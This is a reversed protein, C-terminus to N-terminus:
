GTAAFELRAGYRRAIFSKLARNQPRDLGPDERLIAGAKDRALELLPADTLLNAVRLEPLGHQRTGLLEGPGRLRLDEEAIRFGDREGALVALRANDADAARSTLLLCVGPRDGRGVRGRLQHLQSLGFREAHQVIMLTAEPVDVGVEIVTTCVLAVVRGAAFDALVRQQEDSKMRGHLLGVPFGALPGAALARFEATAARLPLADSEEVLPYVIYAREGNALHSRARAWAAPLRAPPVVATDIPKRGPPLGRITTVDLDGLVTMALSRPIPTATMLLTHPRPGKRRVAARQAVGFRHQEDIIVLGLRAFKVDGEILAHTGVLLDLLGHAAHSVLARRERPPSSGVLLGRRVRSGALYRDFNRFLQRALVETPAMVAVQARRAIAALAAYVAVLTKGSGVDGQILRHMPRPRALDAAIERVAHDQGATLAFPLRARIRGDILESVALPRASAARRRWRRVLQVVVQLVFLEDFAVRQRAAELRALSAPRHLEILAASRTPWGHEVLFSEPHWEPLTPPNAALQEGILRAFLGSALQQTAHYVPEIVPPSSERLPEPEDSLLEVRPNILQAARDYDSVDGLLRVYAGRALRDALYPANFWAARCRGTNDQITAVLSPGAGFGRARVASIQGVVCASQGPELHGIHTPQYVAHRFPFYELLDDVTHIGLEAMAAARRPGVGTLYQVADHGTAARRAPPAARAASM